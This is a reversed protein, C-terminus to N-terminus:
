CCRRPCLPPARQGSPLHRLAAHSWQGVRRWSTTWRKATRAVHCVPLDAGGHEIGAQWVQDNVARVPNKVCFRLVLLHSMVNHSCFSCALSVRSQAVQFAVRICIRRQMSSSRFLAASRRPLCHCDQFFGLGECNRVPAVVVTSWAGQGVNELGIRVAAAARSRWALPLRLIRPTEFLSKMSAIQAAPTLVRSAKGM